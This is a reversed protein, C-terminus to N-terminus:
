YFYNVADLLATKTLFTNTDNNMYDSSDFSYSPDFDAANELTPTLINRVIMSTAIVDQESPSKSAITSPDFSVSVIDGGPSVTKTANIFAKIEEKIVLPDVISYFTNEALDPIQTNINNNSRLMNDMTTHISGSALMTDLQTDTMSTITSSSINGGFGTLGLTDLANLLDILETEQIQNSGTGGVTIGQRFSTPIILDTTTATDNEDKTNSSSLINESITAQISESEFLVNLDVTFLTSLVFDMTGFDTLGLLELGDLIEIVENYEVYTVDDGSIAIRIDNTTGYYEDPVILEGNTGNLMKDSLTAHMISSALITTKDTFFENSDISSTVSDIDTINMVNFARILDEIELKVVFDNANVTKRIETTTDQEYLPVELLNDTDDLNILKDSITLHISASNLFESRKDVPDVAGPDYIKTLDIAGDFSGIDTIGLIELSEFMAGIENKSVYIFDTNELADGVSIKVAISDIDTSPISLVGDVDDLEILQESITGQMIASTLLTNRNTEDYFTNLDIAGDFTTVDTVGLLDMGEFMAELETTVIYETDTSNLANGVTKRIQTIDDEAFHPVVFSAGTTTGELDLVQKSITAQITSSALFESRNDVPTTADPDYIKALDIDGSFSGVDTLELIDLADIVSSIESKTIFETENGVPGITERVLTTDDEEFYPITINGAVDQDILQDSVTAHLTASALLTNVNGVISALDVTGTFSTVDTIGLVDLGAIMNELEVVKIYETENNVISDTLGVTVRVDNTDVDQYPVTVVSDGLDFIQQSVTAQITSSGFFESRNDVPTTADPDYITSLDIAGDFSGVDTLGLIDLADILSEIETKAIFETQNGTPGVLSRVATSDDQELYPITINGSTDQDLLQKSITAHLTASSLMTTINNPDSTISALDVTGDFTDFNTIGLIELSDLIAIIESETIYETDTGDNADGVTIRIPNTDVDEYPVNITETGLDFVQKSITAQLISSELLTDADAIVNNLDLSDVATFDTIDLTLLSQLMHNLEATAVYNLSDTSDVIIVDDGTETYYPVTLVAETGTSQDFLMQSLTAHVLKSDFLTNAKETDLVTPDADTGLNQIISADFTMNELDTFGLVGVAQFLKKIETKSVVDQNVSDVSITTLTSNPVTLISGGQDIILDGITASLIDSSTLTDISAESLNFAKALDFGQEECATDGEDCALDTVLVSAASAVNKLEQALLYNNADLVSDPIILPTTGLDMNLLYDSITAVLLESDFITDITPDDFEAIVELSLNNFDFDSAVDTIANVAQLINRLEGPTQLNGDDDYVDFWTVGDPVVIIDLGELGATGDFINKLAHSVIESQLLVTFDMGSLAGILVNPDAEQLQGVTINTDLVAKAVEGFAQYETEWEMGAPVTIIASLQGSQRELLPELAVYAGLTAIESQSLSDFLDKVETGDLTVTTLDTDDNMIGATNILDFGTGAVAGLTSLESAWDIAYLDETPIELPTEFYDSAIDIGLPIMSTIFKSESLTVFLQTVEAGTIDSVDNTERYDSSLLINATDAMTDLENRLLVKDEEIYFSFVTDFLYLNLPVQGNYNEDTYTIKYANEVFLNNNYGDLMNRTETLISQMDQPVDILGTAMPEPAPASNYLPDYPNYDNSLFYTDIIQANQTNEEPLLVLFSETINLFGGLLILGVFASLAGKAAGAFAGFVPKKAKLKQKKAFKKQEKALRVQEKKHQKKEKRSMQKVMKKMDKRHRKEEKRYRKHEKKGKLTREEGNYDLIVEKSSPGFFLVRIIYFVFRFLVQGITFYLIAYILKVVFLSIGTVFSIFVENSMTDGVYDGAYTEVLAFVANGLTTVGSLEPVYPAAMDFVSPMELVWLADVVADITIFFFAYFLILVVLNYLTKKLGRFYGILFGLGIVGFFAINFYLEYNLGQPM